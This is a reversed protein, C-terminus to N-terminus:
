LLLFLPLLLFLYRRDAPVDVEQTALPGRTGDEVDVLRVGLYYIGHEPRPYEFANEDGSAAASFAKTDSAAGAQALDPTKGLLVEYRLGAPPQPLNLRLYESEINLASKGLDVAGPGPRYAFAVPRSWPGQEGQATITAARWYLPGPTLDVDPRGSGESTAGDYLTTQFVEDGAIQFRYRAAEVAKGWTFLPRAERMTAGEGPVNLRPPFPRAFVTFRHLADIGYLGNVDVARVGLVYDGNPLDAFSLHNSVSRKSSLIKIFDADPAIRAHWGAVEPSAPLDFSLPLHEFRKPLGSVDAPPLLTVPPLPAEGPRVATGKGSRVTVAGRASHVSVAGDLTEERTALDEAGVRFRTGRVVAQAAPTQIRLNQHPRKGPNANIDTQGRLLRLRTDAMLGGAYVTLTDLVLTSAPSVVIRSGDALLLSVSSEEETELTAGAGLQTEETAEQWAGDSAARWRVKGYIGELRAMGPTQRLMSAPIRLVTGPSMRYPDEVKNMKQVKPWQDTRLLYREAVSILTDGPKVTYRWVPAPEDRAKDQAFSITPVATVYLTAIALLLSAKM